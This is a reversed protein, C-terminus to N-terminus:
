ILDVQLSLRLLYLGCLVTMFALHVLLRGAGVVPLVRDVLQAAPDPLLPVAVLIAVATGAATVSAPRPLRRGIAAVAVSYAIALVILIGEMM